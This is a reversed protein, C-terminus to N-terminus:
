NSLMYLAPFGYSGFDNANFIITDTDSFENPASFFTFSFFLTSIALLFLYDRYSIVNTYITHLTTYDKKNRLNTCSLILLATILGCVITFHFNM